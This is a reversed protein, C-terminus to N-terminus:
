VLIAIKLTYERIKVHASRHLFDKGGHNCQNPNEGTYIHERKSLFVQWLSWLSIPQRWHKNEPTDCSLKKHAFCNKCYSYQFSKEESHTRQHSLLVIAVSIHSRRM